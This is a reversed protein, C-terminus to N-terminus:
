NAKVELSSHLVLLFYANLRFSFIHNEPYGFPFPATTDCGPANFEMYINVIWRVM